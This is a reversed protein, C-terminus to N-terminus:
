ITGVTFESARSAEMLYKAQLAVRVSASLPPRHSFSASICLLGPVRHGWLSRSLWQRDGYGAAGAGRPMATNGARPLAEQTRGVRKGTTPTPPPTNELQISSNATECVVCLLLCQFYVSLIM